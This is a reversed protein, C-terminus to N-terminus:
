CVAIPLPANCPQQEVDLSFEDLHQFANQHRDSIRELPNPATDIV